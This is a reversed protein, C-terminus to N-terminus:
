CTIQTSVCGVAAAAVIATSIGGNNPSSLGLPMQGRMTRSGWRHAFETIYAGFLQQM